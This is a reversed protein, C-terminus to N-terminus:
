LGKQVPPIVVAASAAGGQPFTRPHVRHSGDSAAAEGEEGEGEDSEEGEGQEGKTRIRTSMEDVVARQGGKKLLEAVSLEAKRV